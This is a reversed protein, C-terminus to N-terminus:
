NLLYKMCSNVLNIDKKFGAALHMTITENQYQLNNNNLYYYPLQVIYKRLKPNSYIYNIFAGQEYDIGGWISQTTWINNDYNWNNPNYYQIWEKLIEKGNDDNKIFFSGANFECECDWPPMDSTIIMSYENYKNLFLQLKNYDFYIFFADSDLWMFYDIEPFLHFIKYLEFIKGWYPPVNYSSKYLNIYKINHTDCIIKNNIMFKNLLEDYRDEIQLVLIKYEKEM